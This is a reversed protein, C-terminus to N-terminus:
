KVIQERIYRLFEIYSMTSESKDDVLYRTFLHRNSSDERMIHIAVGHPRSQILYSLFNHIKMSLPNELEPLSYSDFPLASFTPVNFVNQVFHDSIAKGIYIYIYESTDLIYAGHSDIHRFSLHVRQPIHLEDEGDQVIQSKDEITHIPYLDPYFIQMLYQIPLTKCLDLYYARDDIRSASAARFATSKIMSLMYLPILRLSYPVMLSFARNSSSTILCSKLIDCAVNSMAERAEQISSTTSREAAMKAVLSTIAEQDANACIERLDSSVPLSLTHVRIRRESKSSTYLLAAQFTVSTYNALKDEIAVQIGFAADPNINPLVLLDVSRVFGSGYFTNISLAPPSRLRMVAEFGIKRQLYRRLDNEFREVEHPKQVSHFGPYYKVEGGSYKAICSLTALDIHHSNLLFLDCAIQLSAYDLSLKKYYDSTPAITTPEKGAHSGSGVSESLAGPNLNPIRTQIVTVRGGTQGLLKSAIQLASGLASDTEHNDQYIKPLENLFSEVVARCECLTVLLGDPMPLFDEPKSDLDPMIMVRFTGNQRDSLDYYHLRSDYTLFGVQTRADGPLNNLSELLIDCFSQLYGTQIANHSVDLLFLYMAPQPPRAMYDATATYEVTGFRVEPRRSPDGYTKTVPDFLFEQPLDNVRFCISCRWRTNDLFTIFPNIYSKCSDCRVIKSGQIVSLSELDKFPHILIGLPLRSKNLLEKTQPIVNLSCRMVEPNCNMQQNEESLVPSVPPEEAYPSIVDTEKLLDLVDGTSQVANLNNMQSMSNTTSGSTSHPMPPQQGFHGSAASNPNQNYQPYPYPSSMNSTSPAPPLPPPPLSSPHANQNFPQPILQAPQQSIPPRYATSPTPYMPRVPPPPVAALYTPVPNYVNSSLTSPPPPPPSTPNQNTHFPPQVSSATNMYTNHGYFQPPTPNRTTNYAHPALPTPNAPPQHASPIPPTSHSNINYLNPLQPATNTHTNFTNFAASSPASLNVNPTFASTGSGIPNINTNFMNPQPLPSNVHTNNTNSVPSTVNTNTSNVNPLPPTPNAQSGFTNIPSSTPQPQLPPPTATHNASFASTLSPTLNGNINSVSPLPSTPNSNTNFNNFSQPPPTPNVNTNHANPIPPTPNTNTTSINTPSSTTNIKGSNINASPPINPPFIPASNPPFLPPRIGNATVHSMPPFIPSSMKDPFSSGNSPRTTTM